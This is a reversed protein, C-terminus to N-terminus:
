AASMELCGFVPGLACLAQAIQPSRARRAQGFRFRLIHFESGCVRMMFSPAAPPLDGAVDASMIAALRREVGKETVLNGQGWTSLWELEAIRDCLLV